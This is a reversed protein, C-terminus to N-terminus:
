QLQAPQNNTGNFGSNKLFEDLQADSMNDLYKSIYSKRMETMPKIFYLEAGLFSVNALLFRFMTLRLSHSDASRMQLFKLVTAVMVINSCMKCVGVTHKANDYKGM